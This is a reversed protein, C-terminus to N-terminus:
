DKYGKTTFYNVISDNYVNNEMSYKLWKKHFTNRYEKPISELSTKNVLGFGSYEEGEFEAITKEMDNTRIGEILMKDNNEIVIVKLSDPFSDGRCYFYYAFSVELYNNSNLDSVEFSEKIYNMDVEVPCDSISDMVSVQGM